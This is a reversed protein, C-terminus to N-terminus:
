VPQRLIWGSSRTQHNRHSQQEPDREDILQLGQDGPVQLGAGGFPQDPIKAGLQEAVHLPQWHREVISGAGIVQSIPQLIVRGRDLVDDNLSDNGDKGSQACQSRHEVNGRTHVQM